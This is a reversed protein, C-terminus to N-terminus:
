LTIQRPKMFAIKIFSSMYSLQHQYMDIIIQPKLTNTSQLPRVLFFFQFGVFNKAVAFTGFFQVM